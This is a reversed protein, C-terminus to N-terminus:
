ESAIPDYFFFISFYVCMDVAITTYELTIGGPCTILAYMIYCEGM